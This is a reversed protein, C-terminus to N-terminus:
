MTDTGKNYDSLPFEVSGSKENKTSKEVDDDCQAGPLVLFIVCCNMSPDIGPILFPLHYWAGKQPPVM